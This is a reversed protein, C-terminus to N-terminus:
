DRESLYKSYCVVYLDYGILALFISLIGLIVSKGEGTLIEILQNNFSDGKLSKNDCELLM